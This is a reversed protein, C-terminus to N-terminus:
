ELSNLNTSKPEANLQLGHALPLVLLQPEELEVVVAIQPPQQLAFQQLQQRDAGALLAHHSGIKRLYM